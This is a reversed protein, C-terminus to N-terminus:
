ASALVTASRHDYGSRRAVAALLHRNPVDFHRLLAAIDRKVTSESSHLQRGIAANAHGALLLQLTALLRPELPPVRNAELVVREPFCVTGGAANLLMPPLQELDDSCVAARAEGRTIASVAWQCAAPVPDVVLAHVVAVGAAGLRDAVVLGGSSRVAHGAQELVYTLAYRLTRDAVVLQVSLPHM